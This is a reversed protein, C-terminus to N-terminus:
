LLKKRIRSVDDAAATIRASLARIGRAIVAFGRGAGGARAAEIAANMAILHDPV